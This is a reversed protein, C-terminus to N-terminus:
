ISSNGATWKIEYFLSDFNSRSKQVDCHDVMLVSLKQQM